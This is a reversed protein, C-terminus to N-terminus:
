IKQFSIAAGNGPASEIRIHYKIEKARRYMNKLGNGDSAIGTDFGKGDDKIQIAPKGKKVSAEIEIRKGGSYKVANNVAEKLMMYLNRREEQGLKHDRAEDSIEQKYLIGNAECLPSAFLSIRSLLDEISGKSDDLVWIIDRIGTIAEQTSEKIKFMYKEQHKEMIALNAYVKVSNMTSGLDDHLDSALKSRIQQEKKLQNVRLRYLAYGIAVITLAVLAKFWWTQYWKPLFILTLEKIESPVGDENFAQVQFHYTGPSFGILTIFNQNNLDIWNKQLEQIRYKFKTREPNRFNIASFHITTQIASSPISYHSLFINSTDTTSESQVVSLNNIYVLAPKVNVVLREPFISIFGNTGGAFLETNFINGSTEEFANDLLGDEKYFQSITGTYTSYANLGNNTTIFLLKNKWPLLKYVGNNSLGNEFTLEGVIELKHNLKLVGKGYVAVYLTDNFTCADFFISYVNDQKSNKLFIKKVSLGNYNFVSLTADSLILFEDKQVLFLTNIVNEFLRGSESQSNFHTAKRQVYNWILIGNANETGLALCSDNIKIASNIRIKGFRTFESYALAIPIKRKAKLLFLGDINSIILQGFPDRFLYDYTKGKEVVTIVDSKRNVKYLGEEATSFIISDDSPFLYYSHNIKTSNIPSYSHSIFPPLSNKMFGLGNQCGLWLDNQNDAYLAYIANLWENSLNSKENGEVVHMANKQYTYLGNSTALWLNGTRDFLVRQISHDNLQRLKNVVPDNKEIVLGGETLKYFMPGQSSTIIVLQDSNIDCSYFQLTIGPESDYICPQQAIQNTNVDYIFLGKNRCLILLLGKKLETILDVYVEPNEIGPIQILSFYNTLLNLKFFGRECGLYAANELVFFSKILNNQLQPDIGQPIRRVVKTTILDIATLGSYSTSLWIQHRSSDVQINRVDPGDIRRSLPSYTNYSIFTKSDYRFLGDQTAIWLFGFNDQVIKRVNGSTLGYSVGIYRVNMRIKQAYSANLIFLFLFIYTKRAALFKKRHISFPPKNIKNM